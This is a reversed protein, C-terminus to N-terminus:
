KAPPPEPLAGKGDLVFTLLKPTIPSAAGGGFGVGAAGQGGAITVYQKGDLMYTMPPGMANRLNTQVEL